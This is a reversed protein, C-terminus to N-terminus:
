QRLAKIKEHYSSLAAHIVLKGAADAEDAVLQVAELVFAELASMRKNMVSCETALDSTAAALKRVIETLDPEKTDEEAM